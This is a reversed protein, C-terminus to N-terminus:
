REFGSCQVSTLTQDSVDRSPVPFDSVKKKCHLHLISVYRHHIRRRRAVGLVPWLPNGVQVEGALSGISYFVNNLSLTMLASRARAVGLVPWLPSGVQVKGALSGISCFINDVSLTM